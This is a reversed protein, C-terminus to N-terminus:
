YFKLKIKNMAFPDYIGNKEEQFNATQPTRIYWYVPLAGVPFGNLSFLLRVM